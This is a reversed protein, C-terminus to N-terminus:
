RGFAKKMAEKQADNLIDNMKQWSGQDTPLDKFQDVQNQTLPCKLNELIVVLFLSRPTEPMDNRAPMVGLAKKLADTQKENFIQFLKQFVERGQSPDFEKLQKAQEESLPVNATKLITAITVTTDAGEKKETQAGVCGVWLVFFLGVSLDIIYKTTKM